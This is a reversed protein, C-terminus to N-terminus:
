ISIVENYDLDKFQIEAEDGGSNTGQLNRNTESRTDKMEEPDKKNKKLLQHTKIM